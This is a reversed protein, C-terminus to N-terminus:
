GELQEAGLAKKVTATALAETTSIFPREFMGPELVLPFETCAAILVMAGRDILQNALVRLGDAVAPSKDGGKIREVWAMTEALEEISHEIVPRHIGILADQYLRANSCGPTTLLGVAEGSASASAAAQVAVDVISLFPVRCAAVIDTQWAHALNCPMVLFDARASELRQASRAIEPGPSEGNGNIARQRSPIHPNHEVIMRIHDQDVRADTNAVVRAMFEVTAEPGMGGIVGVTKSSGAM